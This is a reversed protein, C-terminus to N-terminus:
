EAEIERILDQTALDADFEELKLVTEPKVIAASREFPLTGVSTSGKSGGAKSVQVQKVAERKEVQSRPFPNACNSRQVNALYLSMSLSTM